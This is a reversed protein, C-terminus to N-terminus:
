IWAFNTRFRTMSLFLDIRRCLKKEFKSELLVQHQFNEYMEESSFQGKLNWVMFDGAFRAQLQDCTLKAAQIRTADNGSSPFSIEATFILDFYNELIHKGFLTGHLQPCIEVIVPPSATVLSTVGKTVVDVSKTVVGLSASAGIALAGGAHRTTKTVVDISKHSRWNEGGAQRTTKAVVNGASKFFDM